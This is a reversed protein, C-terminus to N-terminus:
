GSAELEEYLRDRDAKHMAEVQQFLTLLQRAMTTDHGDRELEALLHREITRLGEAVHRKALKLHAHLLVKDVMCLSQRHVGVISTAARASVLSAQLPLGFSPLNTGEIPRSL